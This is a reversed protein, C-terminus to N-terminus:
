IQWPFEGQSPEPAAAGNPIWEVFYTAALVVILIFSQM